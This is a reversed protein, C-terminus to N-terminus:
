SLKSKSTLTMIRLSETSDSITIRAYKPRKHRSIIRETTTPPPPSTPSPLNLLQISKSNMGLSNSAYCTYEGQYDNTFYEIIIESIIYNKVHHIQYNFNMKKNDKMWYIKGSPNMIVQCKLRIINSNSDIFLMNSFIEENIYLSIEPPYQITLQFSRAVDPPYTNSAICEYRRNTHRSINFITVENQESIVILFFFLLRSFISYTL